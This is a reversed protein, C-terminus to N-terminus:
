SARSTAHAAAAAFPVVANGGPDQAMAAVVQELEELRDPAVSGSISLGVQHTM